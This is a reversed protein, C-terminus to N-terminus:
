TRSAHYQEDTVHEHWASGDSSETGEYMTIRVM